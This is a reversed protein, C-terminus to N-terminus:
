SKAPAPASDPKSTASTVFSVLSQWEKPAGQAFGSPGHEYLVVFGFTFIALFILRLALALLSTM